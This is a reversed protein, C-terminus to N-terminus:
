SLSQLIQERRRDREAPSIDFAIELLMGCVIADFFSPHPIRIPQPSENPRTEDILLTDTRLFIPLGSWRTLPEYVITCTEHHGGLGDPQPVCFRALFDWSVDLWPIPDPVLVPRRLVAHPFIELSSLAAPGKEPQFPALAETLYADFDFQCLEAILSQWPSLALLLAGATTGEEIEVPSSLRALLGPRGAAEMADLPILESQSKNEQHPILHRVYLRADRGFFLTGM